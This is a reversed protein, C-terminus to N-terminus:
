LWLYVREIGFRGQSARYEAATHAYEPNAVLAVADVLARTIERVGGKTVADAIAAFEVSMYRKGGDVAAVIAPTAPATIELRGDRHRVVQGRVEPDAKHATLVGVGDAPWQVSQPAFLEARGGTAARGEQLMIGHLTPERGEAQRIEVSHRVRGTEDGM